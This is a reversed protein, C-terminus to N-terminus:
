FSLKEPFLLVNRFRSKQTRISRLLLCFTQIQVLPIFVTVNKEGLYAWVEEEPVKNM